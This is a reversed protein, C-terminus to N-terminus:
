MGTWTVTYGLQHGTLGDTKTDLEEQSEHGSSIVYSATLKATSPMTAGSPVWQRPRIKTAELSSRRRFM